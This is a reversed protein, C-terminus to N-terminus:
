VTLVPKSTHGADVERQADKIDERNSDLISGKNKELEDTIIESHNRSYPSLSFSLLQSDDLAAM